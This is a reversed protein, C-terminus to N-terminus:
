QSSEFEVSRHNRPLAELIADLSDLGAEMLPADISADTGLVDKTIRELASVVKVSSGESITCSASSASSSCCALLPVMMPALM